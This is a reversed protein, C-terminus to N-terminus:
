AYTSSFFFYLVLPDKHKLCYNLTIQSETPLRVNKTLKHYPMKHNLWKYLRIADAHTHGTEFLFINFTESLFSFFLKLLSFYIELFIAYCAHM